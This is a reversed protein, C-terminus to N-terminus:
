PRSRNGIHLLHGAVYQGALLLKCRRENLPPCAIRAMDAEIGLYPRIQRSSSQPIFYMRALLFTIGTTIQKQDHLIGCVTLKASEMSPKVPEPGHPSAEMRGGASPGLFLVLAIRAAEMGMTLGALSLTDM